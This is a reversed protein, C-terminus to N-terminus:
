RSVKVNSKSSYYTLTRNGSGYFTTLASAVAAGDEPTLTFYGKSVSTKAKKFAPLAISQFHREEEVPFTMKVKMHAKANSCPVILTPDAIALGIGSGQTPNVEGIEQYFSNILLSNSYEGTDLVGAFTKLAAQSAVLVNPITLFGKYQAEDQFVLCSGSPSGQRKFSRSLVQGYRATVSFGALTSFASSLDDLADQTIMQGRGEVAEVVTESPNPLWVMRQESIGNYVYDLLIAAKVSNLGIVPSRTGAIAEQDWQILDYRYVAANSLVKLATALTGLKTTDPTSASPIGKLHSTGFNGGVDKWRIVADYTTTVAM